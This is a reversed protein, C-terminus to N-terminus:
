PLTSLWAQEFKGPQCIGAFQPHPGHRPPADLSNIFFIQSVSRSRKYKCGFLKMNHSSVYELGNCVRGAPRDENQNRQLGHRGIGDRLMEVDFALRDGFM